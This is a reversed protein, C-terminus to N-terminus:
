WSMLLAAIVACLFILTTGNVIDMVDVIPRPEIHVNPRWLRLTQVPRV